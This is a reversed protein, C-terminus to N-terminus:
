DKNDVGFRHAIRAKATAATFTFQGFQNTVDDCIDMCDKAILEAFKQLEPKVVHYHGERDFLVTTAGAQEALERIRENM